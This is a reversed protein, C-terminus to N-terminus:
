VAIGMGSLEDNIVKVKKRIAAGLSYFAWLDDEEPVSQKLNIGLSEIMYAIGTLENLATETEPAIM